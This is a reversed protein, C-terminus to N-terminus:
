VLNVRVQSVLEYIEEGVQELPIRSQSTRCLIIGGEIAAIILAAMRKARAEAIDGARLKEAFADQWGDYIHQCAERLTPSTSAMEMAIITIPGGARFGSLEVNLAINKIFISIAEACDDVQALNERIRQLVINGVHNVAEVALAEKGGPFYYYLSGKPTGSEKIIQNLGTAHYGQLELLDCTTEIIQDRTVAM